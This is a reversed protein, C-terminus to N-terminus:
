PHNKLKKYLFGFIIGIIFFIIFSSIFYTLKFCFDREYCMTMAIIFSPFNIMILISNSYLFLIGIILGLIGSSIGWKLTRKM